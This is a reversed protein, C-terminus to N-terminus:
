QREPVIFYMNGESGDYGFDSFDHNDARDVMNPTIKQVSLPHVLYYSHILFGNVVMMCHFSFRPAFGLDIRFVKHEKMIQKLTGTEYEIDQCYDTLEFFGLKSAIMNATDSCLECAIREGAIKDYEANWDSCQQRKNLAFAPTDEYEKTLQFLFDIM